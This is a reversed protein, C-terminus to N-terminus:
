LGLSFTFYLLYINGDSPIASSLYFTGGQYTFSGFDAVAFLNSAGSGKKMVDGRGAVPPKAMNFTNITVSTAGAPIAILGSYTKNKM